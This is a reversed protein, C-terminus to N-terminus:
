DDELTYGIGFITRIGVFDPAIEKMKKRLNYIHTDISREYGLYETGLVMEVLQSRSYVRGPHAALISLIKFETQTLILEEEGLWAKYQCPSLALEKFRIFEEEEEKSHNRGVRRLIVRIRAVLERMSFPKTIYDDAGLELGLLKDVEDTKATLFIIPVDSFRRIERCTEIGNLGPMMWDLLILDAENGQSIYKIAKEGSSVTKPYFGEQMLYKSVTDLIKQEDDVILINRRM